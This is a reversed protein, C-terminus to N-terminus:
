AEDDAAGRRAAAYTSPSIGMNRCVQTEEDSLAQSHESRRPVKSGHQHPEVMKNFAPGVRDMFAEFAPMNTTCLSVAWDGIFPPLRGSKIENAVRHKATEITVGQRLKNADAVVREFDGIPVYKAPDPEASQAALTADGTLDAIEAAIAAVERLRAIVVSQESTEPLGLLAAASRVTAALQDPEMSPEEARSLATLQDLNPSNTLAANIIATVKGDPTTVIVPSIYRYERKAVAQAAADTWEVLGWIGNERKQLGVIWGAAPAPQGNEKAHLSQHEYDLVMKRKGAYNRSGTIVADANELHYPGRGDIGYFSGAPVLHVWSKAPGADESMLAVSLSNKANTATM